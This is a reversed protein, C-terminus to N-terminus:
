FEFNLASVYPSNRKLVARDKASALIDGCHETTGNASALIDGLHETTGNTRALIDGVTNLPAM